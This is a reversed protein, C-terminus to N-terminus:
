DKRWLKDCLRKFIAFKIIDYEQKLVTETSGLVRHSVDLSRVIM